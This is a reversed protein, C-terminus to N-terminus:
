ERPRSVAWFARKMFVFVSQWQQCNACGRRASSNTQSHRIFVCAINAFVLLTRKKWQMTSHLVSRRSHLSYCQVPNVHREVTAVCVAYFPQFLNSTVPHLLVQQAFFARCQLLSCLLFSGGLVCHTFASFVSAFLASKETQLMGVFLMFMPQATRWKWMIITDFLLFEVNTLRCNQM